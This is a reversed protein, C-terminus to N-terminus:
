KENQGRHEKIKNIEQKLLDIERKLSIIKQRLYYDSDHHATFLERVDM